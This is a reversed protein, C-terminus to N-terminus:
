IGKHKIPRYSRCLTVGYFVYRSTVLPRRLQNGHMCRFYCLGFFYYFNGIDAKDVRNAVNKRHMSCLRHMSYLRHMSCLLYSLNQCPSSQQIGIKVTKGIIDIQDRMMIFHNFGGNEVNLFTQVLAPIHCNNDM